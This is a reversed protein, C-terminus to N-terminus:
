IEDKIKKRKKRSESVVCQKLLRSIPVGTRERWDALFRMEHGTLSSAPWQYGKVYENKPPQDM